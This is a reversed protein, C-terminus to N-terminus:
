SRRRTPGIRPTSRAAGPSRDSTRYDSEPTELEFGLGFAPQLSGVQNTVEVLRGLVDLSLGYTFREGPEHKLPLRGLRDIKDALVDGEHGIASIGVKAYIAKFDDSGIHPREAGQVRSTVGSRIM